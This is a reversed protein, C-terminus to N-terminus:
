FSVGLRTCFRDDAVTTMRCSSMLDAIVKKTAEKRPCLKFDAKRVHNSICTGGLNWKPNSFSCVARAKFSAKMTCPNQGKKVSPLCIVQKDAQCVIIDYMSAETKAHKNKLVKLIRNCGKSCVRKHLTDDKGGDAAPVCVPTCDDTHRVCVGELNATNLVYHKHDRDCCEKPKCTPCDRPTCTGSNTKPDIITFHKNCGKADCSTCSSAGKLVPHTTYCSLEVSWKVSKKVTAQSFKDDGWCHLGNVDEKIAGCFHESQASSVVFEYNGKPAGLLWTRTYVAVNQLEVEAKVKMELEKTSAMTKALAALGAKKAVTLTHYSAHASTKAGEWATEAATRLKLAAAKDTAYKNDAARRVANNKDHDARHKEKIAKWKLKQIGYAVSAAKRLNSYALRAARHAALLNTPVAQGNRTCDHCTWKQDKNDPDCKAM